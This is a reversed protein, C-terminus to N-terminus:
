CERDFGLRSTAIQSRLNFGDCLVFVEARQNGGWNGVV